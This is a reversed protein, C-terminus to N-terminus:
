PRIHPPRPPRWGRSRAVALADEGDFKSAIRFAELLEADIKGRGYFYMAAGYRTMGSGATGPPASLFEIQRRDEDSEPVIAITAAIAPLM